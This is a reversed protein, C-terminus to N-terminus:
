YVTEVTHDDLYSFSSEDDGPPALLAWMALDDMFYSFIWVQIKDVLSTFFHLMRSEASSINAGSIMFFRHVHVQVSVFWVQNFM